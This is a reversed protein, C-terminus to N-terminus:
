KVLHTHLIKHPPLAFHFRASNQKMVKSQSRSTQRSINASRFYIASLKLTNECPWFLRNWIRKNQARKPLSHLKSKTIIFLIEPVAYYKVAFHAFCDFCLWIFFSFVGLHCVLSCESKCLSFYIHFTRQSPQAYQFIYVIISDFLM